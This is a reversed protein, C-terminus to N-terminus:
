MVVCLCGQEQQRKNKKKKKKKRPAPAQRTDRKHAWTITEDLLVIVTTSKTENSTNDHNSAPKSLGGYDYDDDDSSDSREKSLYDMGVYRVKPEPSILRRAPSLATGEPSESDNQQPSSEPSQISDKQPEEDEMPALANTPEVVPPAIPGKLDEAGGNEVIKKYKHTQYPNPNVCFKCKCNRTLRLNAKPRNLRFNREWAREAVDHSIADMLDRHTKNSARPRWVPAAESPLVVDEWNEYQVINQATAASWGEEKWKREEDLQRDILYLQRVVRRGHEDTLKDVDVVEKEITRVNQDYSTVELPKPGKMKGLAAAENIAIFMSSRHHDTRLGSPGAWIQEEKKEAVAEVSHEHLRTLIGIRAAELAVDVYVTKHEDPVERVETVKLPGGAEIRKNRANAKKAIMATMDLGEDAPKEVHTIKKEGGKDLRNRRKSAAAAIMAAMGGQPAHDTYRDAEKSDYHNEMTHQTRSSMPVRLDGVDLATTAPNKDVTVKREGAQDLRNRRNAAAAAIMSAMSGQPVDNTDMGPEKIDNRRDMTNRPRSAKQKTRDARAPGGNKPKAVTKTENGRDLRSRPRGVAAASRSATGSQPAKHTSRDRGKSDDVDRRTKPPRSVEPKRRNAMGAGGGVPKEGSPIQMDGGRDSQNRDRKANRPRSSKQKRGDVRELGENAPNPLHGITGEVGNDRRNRQTSTNAAIMSALGRQPDGNTGKDNGNPVDRGAKINTPRSRKNPSRLGAHDRERRQNALNKSNRNSSGRSHGSIPTSSPRVDPDESYVTEEEFVVETEEIVEETYDSETYESEEVYELEYVETEEYYEETFYDDDNTQHTAAM